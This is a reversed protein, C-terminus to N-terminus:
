MQLQYPFLNDDSVYFHLNVDDLLHKSRNIITELDFKNTKKILFIYKCKKYSFPFAFFFFCPFMLKSYKFAKFMGRVFSKGDNTLHFQGNIRFTVNKINKDPINAM